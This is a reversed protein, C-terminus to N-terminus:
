SRSRMCELRHASCKDFLLVVAALVLIQGVPWHRRVGVVDRGLPEHLDIILKRLGMPLAGFSLGGPVTRCHRMGGTIFSIARCRAIDASRARARGTHSVSTSNTATAWTPVRHAAAHFAADSPRSKGVPRNVSPAWTLLIPALCARWGAARM